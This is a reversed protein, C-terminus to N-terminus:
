QEGETMRKGAQQLAMLAAMAPHMVKPAKEFADTLRSYLRLGGAKVDQYARPSIKPLAPAVAGLMGLATGASRKTLGRQVSSTDVMPDEFLGTIADIAGRGAKKWGPEL